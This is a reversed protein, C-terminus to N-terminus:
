IVEWNRVAIRMDAIIREIFKETTTKVRIVKTDGDALTLVVYRVKKAM